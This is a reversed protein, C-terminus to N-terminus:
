ILARLHPQGQAKNEINCGLFFDGDDEYLMVM